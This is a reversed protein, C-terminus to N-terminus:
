TSQWRRSTPSSINEKVIQDLLPQIRQVCFPKRKVKILFEYRSSFFISMIQFRVAKTSWTLTLQSSVVALYFSHGFFGGLCINHILTVSITDDTQSIFLPVLGNKHFLLLFYLDAKLHLSYFHFNKLFLSM